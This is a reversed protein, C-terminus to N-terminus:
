RVERIREARRHAWSAEEHLGARAFFEVLRDYRQLVDFGIRWQLKRLCEACLHLPQRDSEPLSNSGNMTCLNDKCHLLGFMHGLEHVVVQLSRRLEQTETERTRAEGLFEPGLRALSYIGVRDRLRAQGFVFNWDEDPYLDAMTIGLLAVATPPLVPPLDQELFPTTLYQGWRRGKWARWRDPEDPLPLAPAIRAPLDFWLATFDAVTRLLAEEREAFPGIPVLVIETRRATPGVPDSAVYAEFSQGPEPFRM